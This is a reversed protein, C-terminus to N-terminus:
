CSNQFIEFSIERCIMTRDVEYEVKIPLKNMITNIVIAIHSISVTHHIHPHLFREASVTRITDPTKSTLAELADVALQKNMLFTVLQELDGTSKNGYTTM